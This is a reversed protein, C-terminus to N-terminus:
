HTKGGYGKSPYLLSYYWLYAYIEDDVWDPFKQIYGRLCCVIYFCLNETCSGHSLTTLFEWFLSWTEIYPELYPPFTSSRAKLNLLMNNLLKCVSYKFSTVFRVTHHALRIFMSALHLWKRSVPTKTCLTRCVPCGTLMEKKCHDFKDIDGPHQPRNTVFPFWKPRLTPM